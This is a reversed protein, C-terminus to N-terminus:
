IKTVSGEGLLDGVTYASDISGQKLHIFIEAKIKIKTTPSLTHDYHINQDEDEKIDILSNKRVVVKKKENKSHSELSFQRSELRVSKKVTNM